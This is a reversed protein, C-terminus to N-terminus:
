VSEEPDPKDEFWQIIALYVTNASGWVAVITVLWNAPIFGIAYVFLGGVISLVLAVLFKHGKKDIFQKVYQTVSAIVAGTLAYPMIVALISQLQEM